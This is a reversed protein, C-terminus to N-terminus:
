PEDYSLSWRPSWFWCREPCVEGWRLSRVFEIGGRDFAAGLRVGQEENGALPGEAMVFSCPSVLRVSYGGGRRTIALVAGSGAHERGHRGRVCLPFELTGGDALHRLWREAPETVGFNVYIQSVPADPFTEADGQRVTAQGWPRLNAEASRALAADYEVAEVHGTPGVLEAIVASYYGTGAGLHLAREGSRVDLQHLMRAHLSPSGNNVYRAPNLPVLVDDYLKAPDTEGDTRSLDGERILAWPPPGVFSKRPVAAFAAEVRDDPSGIKAVMRRAYDARLGALSAVGSVEGGEGRADLKSCRCTPSRSRSGNRYFSNLEGNNKVFYVFTNVWQHLNFQDKRMTIGNPQQLLTFKHEINGEPHQAYFNDGTLGTEAIADVQGTLLAQYTSPDDDFRAMKVANGLAKSIIVDQVTGRPVGVRLGKLDNLKTITKGKPAFVVNEIASYPISFMVQKAREPTIGFTAM